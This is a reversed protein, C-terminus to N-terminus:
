LDWSIQPIPPQPIDLTWKRAFKLIYPKELATFSLTTRTNLVVGGEQQYSIHNGNKSTNVVVGEEQQYSIHNGNKASPTLWRQRPEPRSSGTWHRGVERRGRHQDTEWVCVSPIRPRRAYNWFIHLSFQVESGHRCLMPSNPNGNAIGHVTCDLCNRM